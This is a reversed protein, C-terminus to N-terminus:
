PAVTFDAQGLITGEGDVVDVHWKGIHKDRNLTVKSWTRMRPYRIALPVDCYHEGNLFYAHTLTFPQTKSVVRMWVYAKGDRSLSFASTEGVVQKQRVSGCVALRTIQFDSSETSPAVTVTSEEEATTPLSREVAPSATTEPAAPVLAIVPESTSEPTKSTAEANATEKAPAGSEAMNIPKARSIASDGPDNVALTKDTQVDPLPPQPQDLPAPTPEKKIVTLGVALLVLFVSALVM